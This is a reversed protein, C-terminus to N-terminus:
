KILCFTSAQCLFVENVCIKQTSKAKTTRSQSWTHVSCWTACSVSVTKIAPCTRSCFALLWSASCHCFFKLSYWCKQMCSHMSVLKMYIRREKGWKSNLLHPGLTCNKFVSYTGVQCGRGLDARMANLYTKVKQSHQKGQLQLVYCINGFVTMHDTVVACEPWFDVVVVQVDSSVEYHAVRNSEFMLNSSCIHCYYDTLLGQLLDEDSKQEVHCFRILISNIMVVLFSLCHRIFRKTRFNQWPEGWVNWLFSLKLVNHPCILNVRDSDVQKEPKQDIKDWWLNWM